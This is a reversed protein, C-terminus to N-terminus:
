LQRTMFLGPAMRWRMSQRPGANGQEGSGQCDAQHGAQEVPVFNGYHEM